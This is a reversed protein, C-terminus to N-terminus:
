GHVQRTAPSLRDPQSASPTTTSPLNPTKQRKGQVEEKAAQWSHPATNESFYWGPTQTSFHALYLQQLVTLLREVPQMGTVFGSRCLDEGPRVFKSARFDWAFKTWHPQSLHPHLGNPPPPWHLQTWKSHPAQQPWITQPMIQHNPQATTSSPWAVNELNFISFHTAQFERPVVFGITCTIRGPEHQTQKATSALQRSWIIDHWIKNKNEIM